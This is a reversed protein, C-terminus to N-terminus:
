TKMQCSWTVPLAITRSLVEEAVPLDGNSFGGLARYAEQMHCPPYFINGTEVGYEDMLAKTFQQRDIGNDLILPYKYYASRYGDPCEITKLCKNEKLAGNYFKAIENRRTVFEDLRKLQYVGLLASIEAMVMHRGVNVFNTKGSGSGYFSFRKAFERLGANNTAMMGGEGTTIVKTPTFSFVAADGLSGVKKGYISAGISHTADEILFLNRTRCIEQIRQLDPNPFGSIHTVIVGQTDPSLNRELSDPDMSLTDAKIDAFVVKGGAFMVSNPVSIFSNTCVVVEKGEVGFYRLATEYASSDSDFAVAGDVGLYSATQDEFLKVNKGFRFQGEELLKGIDSLLPNIAEKPFFPKSSRILNPM